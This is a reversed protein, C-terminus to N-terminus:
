LFSLRWSWTIQMQSTKSLNPFTAMSYLNGNAMQIAMENLTFGNGESSSIVSTLIVQSPISPNVSSIVPKSVRTIGFLGNRNSSVTKISGDIAGGDGFIMRNIYFNFGDGIENSLSAALAERGKNLVANKFALREKRGDSYEIIAEVDGCLKVSDQQEIM